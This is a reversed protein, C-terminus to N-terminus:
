SRRKGLLGSVSLFGRDFLMVMTAATILFLNRVVLTYDAKHGGENSFCGCDIVLGRVQTTIIAITFTVLLIFAAGAAQRTFLGLVLMIGAVLEGWAVALAFLNTLALPLMEYARVAIAFKAPHLVKDWASYILLAGIFVRLLLIFARSTLLLTVPNKSRVTVANETM